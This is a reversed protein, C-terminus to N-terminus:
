PSEPRNQRVGLPRAPWSADRPGGDALLQPALIGWDSCLEFPWATFSRGMSAEAAPNHSLRLVRRGGLRTLRGARVVLLFRLPRM